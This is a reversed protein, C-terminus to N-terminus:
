LPAPAEAARHLEVTLEPPLQLKRALMALYAQEAPSDLSIAALSAAYLEAAMEPGDALAAVDDVSLDRNLRALVDSKARADLDSGEVADLVSKLEQGDIHGDAKAAAIMATLMSLALREEAGSQGPPPLFGGDRPPAEMQADSSFPPPAATANGGAQKAQWNKWAYWALGAVAAAGGVKLANSGLSKAMKKNTLMGGLMGGAVGGLAGKATPSSLVQKLLDQANFPM